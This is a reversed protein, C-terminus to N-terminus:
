EHDGARSLSDDTDGAVHQFQECRIDEVGAAALEDRAHAIMQPGGCVMAVRGDWSQHRAAVSGVLGRPGPFSHDDSVVETYDFWPRDQALATLRERDYLNWPVRVGHFLHVRPGAGDAQWVRDVQEVVARLPALGTGGAVM